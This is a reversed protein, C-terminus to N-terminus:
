GSPHASLFAQRGERFLSWRRVTSGDKCKKRMAGLGKGVIAYSLFLMWGYAVVLLILLRELRAPLM